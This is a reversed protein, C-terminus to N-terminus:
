KILGKQKLTNHVTSLSVRVEETIETYKKGEKYMQIIKKVKEEPIRRRGKKWGIQKGQERAKRLGEKTRESRDEAEYQKFAMIVSAMLRGAPTTLDLFGDATAWIKNNKVFEECIEEFTKKKRTLRDMYATVIGDVVGERVLRLAEQFLPRNDDRGSGKERYIRYIKWGKMECFKRCKEIQADLSYGERGQEETSVRAYIIVLKSDRMKM